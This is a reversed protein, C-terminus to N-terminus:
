RLIILKGGASTDESGCRARIRYFYVGSAMDTGDTDRCDWDATNSNRNCADSALSVILRGTASYIEVEVRDAPRSLAYAFTTRSASPSPYARVSRVKLDTEVVFTVEIRTRNPNFGCDSACLRLDYTGDPLPDMPFTLRVTDAGVKHTDLVFGNVPSGNLIVEVAEPDIGSERDTFVAEVLPCPSAFDFDHFERGIMERDIFALISPPISDGTQGPFRVRLTDVTLNNWENSEVILNDGDVEILVEYTGPDPVPDWVAQIEMHEGAALEPVTVEAITATGSGGPDGCAFRVPIGDADERGANYVEARITDAAGAVPSGPDFAISGILLDPRGPFGMELAPDGFLILMDAQDWFYPSTALYRVKAEQVASGLIFNGRDLMSEFLFDGIVSSCSAYDLGSHCWCAVSGKAPARTLAEALCCDDTAHHFFGNLCTFAAVLPLRGENSLGVVDDSHFIRQAAWQKLAGHGIYACVVCGDDIRQMIESKCGFGCESVYVREVEFGAPLFYDEAFEECYGEFNGAGDPTDAVLLARERWDGQILGTEYGVIKSVLARAEEPTEASLRGVMMDPLRDDGAVCAFWDDSSTELDDSQSTFLRTPVYNVKGGPLNGRYDFSADGVLLVYAPSPRQWQWYAYELFAKIAGPDFLGFSFEDYIDTVPVVEVKLGEAERLRRLPEVEDLFDEHSIILYDARNGRSALDSPDDLLIGAPKLRRGSTIAMYEHGGPAAEFVAKYAGDEQIVSTGILRATSSADGLRFIEIGPESFGCIEVQFAASDPSKFRLEDGYAEFRRRYEIEFWNFFIQDMGSEPCQIKLTNIGDVLHVEPCMLTQELEVMGDWHIDELLAGNISVATRHPASTKGRLGLRAPVTGSGGLVGPLTLPYVGSSPAILQEWFWHDKGEGDHVNSYYRHDEEFHLNEIFHDPVALTDGPSCPIEQMRDGYAGDWILWYVNTRSFESTGAPGFFELYDGEDLIGDEEGVVRIPLETGMNFIKLSRPDITDVPLGANALDRRDIEYVGDTDVLIKCTEKGLRLGQPRSGVPAPATGWPVQGPAYNLILDSYLRDYPDLRSPAGSARCEMPFAAAGPAILRLRIKRHILMTGKVPNYQVPFISLQAVRVERLRGHFGVSAVDKPYYEDQSYAAADVCFREGTGTGGDEVFPQPVPLVRGSKMLVPETDLVEAVLRVGEPVAILFGGVPLWPKGIGTTHGYGKIAVKQFTQGDAATISLMIEPVTFNAILTDGSSGPPISLTVGDHHLSQIATGARPQATPSAAWICLIFGPLLCAAVANLPRIM